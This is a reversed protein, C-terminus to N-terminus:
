DNLNLRRKERAIRKDIQRNRSRDILKLVKRVAIVCFAGAGLLASIVYGLFNNLNIYGIYSFILFLPLIVVFAMAKQLVIARDVEKKANEAITRDLKANRDLQQARDREIKELENKQTAFESTLNIQEKRIEQIHQPSILNEIHDINGEMLVAKTREHALLYDIDEQTIEDRDKFEKLKQVFNDWTENGVAVQQTINDSLFGHLATGSAAEVNNLWLIGTLQEPTFAEAITPGSNHKKRTFRVMNKDSSLFIAESAHISYCIGQRQKKRINRILEISLCDNEIVRDRYGKERKADIFEQYYRRDYGEKDNNQAYAINIGLNSLKADLNEILKMVLQSDYGKRNMRYYLSNVPIGDVYHRGHALYGRLLDRIEIRTHEFISIRGKSSLILRIADKVAQNTDDEHLELLSLFINTDIYFFVKGLSFGSEKNLLHSAVLQGFLLNSLYNFGGEDSTRIDIFFQQIKRYIDQDLLPTEPEGILTNATVFSNNQIFNKLHGRLEEVSYGSLYEKLKELLANEKRHASQIDHDLKTIRKKGGEAIEISRNGTDTDTDILSGYNVLNNRKLRKVITKVMATPIDINFKLKAAQKLEQLSYKKDQSDLSALIVDGYLGISDRADEYFTKLAAFSAMLNSM